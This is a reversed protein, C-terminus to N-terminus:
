GHIARGDVALAAEKLVESLTPHAHVSRALDEASAKFEFAVAAEAILDSARPGVVHVGLLRDTRADALIKVMGDVEGLSKARGNPKFYYKGVRYELGREKAEEEGFGVQALEPRTYVVSPIADYSVHGPQGALLEAVAVGEEEAKHALMPGEILDGIAYVGPATTAFARDVRVRGREDLAVGAEELGLGETYPKRGVAVLVRDAAIEETKGKTDEVTVAVGSEQAEAAVVKTSTRIALGQKKLLRQLTMAMQKDAFPVIRPLLEVVTVEAGLRAWVSGLELGVAGAGVVLLRAPVEGFALAESSTVLRDGDFPLGPIESPAGGTALLVARAELRHAEGEGPPPTVEVAGPEGALRGAGRYVTIKNKKMLLGLGDTLEKVVREKRAMMAAVDLSVEGDISIGHESLGGGKVQVYRETAELLVKSPICGVRLCTGGLVPEKEVLAVKSGLQAARIAAVYGGPGAGIVILDFSAATM